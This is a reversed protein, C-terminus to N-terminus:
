KRGCKKCIFTGKRKIMESIPCRCRSLNGDESSFHYRWWRKVGRFTHSIMETIKQKM